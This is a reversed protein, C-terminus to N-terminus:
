YCLSKSAVEIFKFAKVDFLGSDCIKIDPIVILSMFSLTLFPNFGCDPAIMKVSQRLEELDIINAQSSKGM